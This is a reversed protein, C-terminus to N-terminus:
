KNLEKSFFQNIDERVVANEAIWYKVYQTTLYEHLGESGMYHLFFDEAEEINDIDYAKAMKLLYTERFEDTYELKECRMIYYMLMEEYCSRESYEKLYAFYEDLTNYGFTEKVYELLTLGSSEASSRASNLASNYIQDYQDQPVSILKSNDCVYKWALAEKYGEIYGNFEEILEQSVYNNMSEGYYGYHDHYFQDDIGSYDVEDIYNLYIEMEVERGSNLYDKYFPDPLTLTVTKTEGQSMGLVAADLEPFGFHNIGLLFTEGFENDNKEFNFLGYTEGTDKFRCTTIIDVFDYNQCPRDPDETRECYYAALLKLKNNVDEETPVYQVFPLEIGVYKCLEVHDPISIDYPQGTRDYEEYKKKNKNSCAACFAVIMCIVLSLSIYRILTKM